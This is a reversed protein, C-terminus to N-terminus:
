INIEEPLQLTLLLSEKCYFRLTLVVKWHFCFCNSISPLKLDSLIKSFPKLNKKLPLKLQYPEKRNGSNKKLNYQFKIIYISLILGESAKLRSRKMNAKWKIKLHTFVWFLKSWIWPWNSFLPHLSYFQYCLPSIVGVKPICVRPHTHSDYFLRCPFFHM